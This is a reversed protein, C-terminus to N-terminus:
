AGILNLLAPLFVLLLIKLPISVFLLPDVSEMDTDVFRDPVEPFIALSIM